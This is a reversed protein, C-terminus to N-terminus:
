YKGTNTLGKEFKPLNKLKTAMSQFISNGAETHYNTMSKGKKSLSALLFINYALNDELLWGRLLLMYLIFVEIRERILSQM